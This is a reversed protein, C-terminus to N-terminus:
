SDGILISEELIGSMTGIGLRLYLRREAGRVDVLACYVKSGTMKPLEFFYLMGIEARV